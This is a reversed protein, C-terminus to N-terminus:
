LWCTSREQRWSTKSQGSECEGKRVDARAAGYALQGEPSLSARKLCNGCAHHGGRKVKMCDCRAPHDCVVAQLISRVRVKGHARTHGLENSIERSPLAYEVVIGHIYMRIAELVFVLM